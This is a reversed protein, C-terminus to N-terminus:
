MIFFYFFSYLFMIYFFVTVGNYEFSFIIPFFAYQCASLMIADVVRHLRRFINFFPLFRREFSVTFFKRKPVFVNFTFQRRCIKFLITM